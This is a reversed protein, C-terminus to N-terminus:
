SHSWLPTHAVAHTATHKQLDPHLVSASQLARSAKSRWSDIIYKHNLAASGLAFLNVVGSERWIVKYGVLVAMCSHRRKM